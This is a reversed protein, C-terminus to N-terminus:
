EELNKTPWLEYVGDDRDPNSRYMILHYDDIKGKDPVTESRKTLTWPLGIVEVAQVMEWVEALTLVTWGM